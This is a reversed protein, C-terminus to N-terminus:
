NEGTKVGTYILHMYFIATAFLIFAMAQHIVGLSVPVNYILTFVGLLFQLLVVIGIM